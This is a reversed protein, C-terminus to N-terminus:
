REGSASPLALRFRAGPGGPLLELTGGHAEAIARALWLGLGSSGATSSGRAFPDIVPDVGPGDDSMEVFITTDGDLVDIRVRSGHRLGNSVLNAIAQRLRTPDGFVHPNGDVSVTVDEASFTSAVTTLDVLEPRLSLLEVDGLIREIDRGAAVALDVIRGRADAPVTPLADVLATLAAVPSRLEHAVVALRERAEGSADTM